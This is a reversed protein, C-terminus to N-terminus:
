LGISLLAELALAPFSSIVASPGFLSRELVL